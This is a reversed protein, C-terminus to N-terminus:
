ADTPTSLNETARQADARAALWRRPTLESARSRDETMQRIVDRLYEAPDIKLRWCTAVLSLITAARPGANRHGIFLWNKRGVAIPRISNEASNNDIEAEAVEVYLELTSWNGLAYQIAEGTLSKPLVKSCQERLYKELKELIPKAHERRFEVLAEGRLSEERAHRELRYLHQIAGLAVKAAKTEGLAKHFRRRAHAWCGLRVIRKGELRDYGSYADCQLNGEYGSLFEEAFVGGRGESFDFVVERWPIGYTWLYGKKVGQKNLVKVPTEDAQILSSELVERKLAEWIPLLLMAMVQVWDCLTSRPIDVGDRKFAKELRYLPMHDVYKSVLIHVLLGLGPWGKKIPRKPLEEQLVGDQCRKCAYKPRVYERAIFRAPVYDLETTVDEGIPQMETNCCSCTRLEDDVDLVVRERAIEEPVTRPKRKKKRAPPKEDAATEAELEEEVEAKAEEVVEDLFSFTQQGPALKESSRGYTRSRMNKLIRALLQREQETAELKKQLEELERRLLEIEKELEESRKVTGAVM